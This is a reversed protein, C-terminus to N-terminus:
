AWPWSSVRWTASRNDGGDWGAYTSVSLLRPLKGTFNNGQAYGRTGLYGGSWDDRASQLHFAVGDGIEVAEDSDNIRIRWRGTESHKGPAVSVCWLNDNCGRRATALYRVSGGSVLYIYIVDNTLVPENRKNPDTASEIYWVSTLGDIHYDFPQNYNTTYVADDEPNADLDGAKWDDWGGKLRYGNKLRYDGGYKMDSEYKLTM